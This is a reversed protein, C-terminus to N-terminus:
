CRGRDPHGATLRRAFMTGTAAHTHRVHVLVAVAFGERTSPQALGASLARLWYQSEIGAETPALGGHTPEGGSATDSGGGISRRRSAAPGPAGARRRRSLRGAGILVACELVASGVPFALRQDSASHSITTSAAIASPSVAAAAARRLRFRRRGRGLVAHTM